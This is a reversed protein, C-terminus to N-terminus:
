QRTPNDAMATLERKAVAVERQDPKGIGSTTTADDGFWEAHIRIKDMFLHNSRAESAWPQEFQGM